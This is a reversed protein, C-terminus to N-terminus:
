SVWRVGAPLWWVNAYKLYVLCTCYRANQYSRRSTQALEHQADPPLPTVDSESGPIDPNVVLRAAANSTEWPAL